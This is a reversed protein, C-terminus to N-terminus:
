GRGKTVLYAQDITTLPLGAKQKAMATQVGLSYTPNNSTNPNNGPLSPTTIPQIVANDDQNKKLLYLALAAAGALLIIAKKQEM